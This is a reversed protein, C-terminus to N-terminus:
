LKLQIELAKQWKQYELTIVFVNPNLNPDKVYEAKKTQREVTNGTKKPNVLHGLLLRKLFFPDLDIKKNKKASCYVDISIVPLIM